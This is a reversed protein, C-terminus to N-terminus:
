GDHWCRRVIHTVSICKTGGPDCWVAEGILAHVCTAGTDQCDPQGDVLQGM